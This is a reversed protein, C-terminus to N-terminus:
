KNGPRFEFGWEFTVNSGAPITVHDRHNIGFDAASGLAVTIETGDHTQWIAELQDGAALRRTGLLTFANSGLTHNYDTGLTLIGAPNLASGSHVILALTGAIENTWDAANGITFTQSAQTATYDESHFEITGHVTINGSAGNASKIFAYDAVVVEPAFFEHFGEGILDFTIVQGNTGADYRTIAM